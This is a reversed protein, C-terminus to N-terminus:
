KPTTETVVAIHSMAKNKHIPPSSQGMLYGGFGIAWLVVPYSIWREVGGPGILSPGSHTIGGIIFLCFSVLAAAGMFVAFYCFPSRVIRNSIIAALGGATFNLFAFMTHIVLSGQTGGDFVAVGIASAGVLALLISLM